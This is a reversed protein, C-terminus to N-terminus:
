KSSKKAKDAKKQEKKAAIETARKLRDEATNKSKRKEIKSKKGAPKKTIILDHYNVDKRKRTGKVINKSDISAGEAVRKTKDVPASRQEQWKPTAKEAKDAKKPATKTPTKKTGKAPM